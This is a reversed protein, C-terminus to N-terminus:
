VGGFLGLQVHGSQRRLESFLDVLLVCRRDVSESYRVSYVGGDVVRDVGGPDLVGALVGAQSGQLRIWRQGADMSVSIRLDGDSYVVRDIELVM